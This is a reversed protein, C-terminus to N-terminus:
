AFFCLETLSFDVLLLHILENTLVFLSKCQTQFFHSFIQHFVDTEVVLVVEVIQTLLLIGQLLQELLHVLVRRLFGRAKFLLYRRKLVNAFLCVAFHLHYAINFFVILHYQM